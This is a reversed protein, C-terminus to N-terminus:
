HMILNLLRQSFRRIVGPRREGSAPVVSSPLELCRLRCGLSFFKHCRRSFELCPTRLVGRLLWLHAYLIFGSVFPGNSYKALQPCGYANFRGCSFRNMGQFGWGMPLYDFVLSGIIKCCALAFRLLEFLILIGIDVVKASYLCFDIM